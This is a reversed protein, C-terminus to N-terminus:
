DFLRADGTLYEQSVSLTRENPKACLFEIFNNNEIKLYDYAELSHCMHCIGNDDVIKKTDKSEFSLVGM